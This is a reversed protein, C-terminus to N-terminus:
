TGQGCSKSQLDLIVSFTLQEHTGLVGWTGNQLDSDTLITDRHIVSLRMTVDIESIITEVKLVKSQVASVLRLM